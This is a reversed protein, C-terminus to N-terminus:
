TKGQAKQRAVVSMMVFVCGGMAVAGWLQWTMLWRWEVPLLVHWAVVAVVLWFLWRLLLEGTLWTRLGDM